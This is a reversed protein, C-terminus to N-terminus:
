LQWHEVLIAIDMWADEAGTSGVGAYLEDMGWSQAWPAMSQLRISAWRRYSVTLLTLLRYAMSDDAEGGDKELFALRGHTRSTPWGAGAEIQNHFDAM